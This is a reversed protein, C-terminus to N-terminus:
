PNKRPVDWVIFRWALFIGLCLLASIAMGVIGGSATTPPQLTWMVFAGAFAVMLVIGVMKRGSM